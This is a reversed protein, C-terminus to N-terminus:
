AALVDRRARRLASHLAAHAAVLSLAAAAAGGGGGRAAAVLFLLLLFFDIHVIVATAIWVSRLASRETSLLAFLLWAGRWNLFACHRHLKLLLLEICSRAQWSLIGIRIVHQLLVRWGGQRLSRRLQWRLNLLLLLFLILLLFLSILFRLRVPVVAGRRIRAVSVVM